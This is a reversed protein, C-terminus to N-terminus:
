VLNDLLDNVRLTVYLLMWYVSSNLLCSTRDLADSRVPVLKMFLSRTPLSDLGVCGKQDVCCCSSCADGLLGKVRETSKQSIVNDM